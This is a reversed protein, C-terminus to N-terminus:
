DRRSDDQILRTGSYCKKAPVSIFKMEPMIVATLKNGFVCGTDVGITRGAGPNQRVFPEKWVSHGFVCDFTHDYPEYWRVWGEVRNEAETRGSKDTNWWRTPGLNNLQILQLRCIANERRLQEHLPLYPFLGGHVIVLNIDDFVALKPLAALYDVERQTLQSLTNQKDPNKTPFKGGNKQMTNWHGVIVGDHNGEIGKIGNKICFDIVGRSDSGRDVYDGAIWTEDVGEKQLLAFLEQLEELCGHPDGIVAIKRVRSM